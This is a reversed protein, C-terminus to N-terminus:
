KASGCQPCFKTDLNLAIGCHACYARNQSQQNAQQTSVSQSQEAILLQICNILKGMQGKLHGSQIPGVGFVKGKFEIQTSSQAESTLFIKIEVPYTLLMSLSLSEKCVFQSESQEMMRWGMQAIAKRCIQSVVTLPLPAAINQQSTSV